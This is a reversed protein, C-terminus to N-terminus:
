LRPREMEAPFLHHLHVPFVHRRLWPHRCVPCESPTKKWGTTLLHGCSRCRRLRQNGAVGLLGVVSMWTAVVALGIIALIGLAELVLM